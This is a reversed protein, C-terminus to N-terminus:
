RTEEKGQDSKDIPHTFLFRSGEEYDPDIWISGGLQEIILQCISLGLGTGQANENLKEFRNFIKKQKEKPIGTGTDTVSFLATDETQQELQLTISGQSTFKTANILLNILVQQLRASDTLLELSDLPTSFRVDAHTQKIKEVMDIVNRCLGVADCIKFKFTMKGIELSSLDIVDNILKLLLESNQQIIDNCQKRTEEDISEETLITSFGSLANLPTRIEHSMNSLFLSKTRISNEAQKKVKEQEQQSQILRKNNRKIRFIFFIILSLVSLIIFWSWYLIKKQRNINNLENKDIQYLTHLENIQRLYSNADLSDKRANIVEYEECAEEIRGMLSLVKAREQSIQIDKYSGSEKVYPLLEDYSQLAQTYEKAAIHYSAYLYKILLLFYPYPHKAYIREMKQLHELASPLKDSQIEYFARCCPLYFYCPSDPRKDCLAELYNIDKEIGAMQRNNLKILIMQSLANKLYIDAEPIQQMIEIAEEYSGIAVQPTSSSLYTNGIARLALATGLPYDIEKAKKYMSNANDIALSINGETISSQVAMAKLQFLIDYRQQKELEPTLLKEWLIISDTTVCPLLEDYSQLAQTYEKAAIHYSAYLYKILLLFYPYPHKAYIREMKQLHELASPLKDSQIEYFARCCPLYFYCPSDPRKDCLAELYNIDKEIGAMQRNNLKILIMQSLANKLYIDAEPIQQMIEIAEEYSGIAVQPTSSSLYTNGIARLALATGLPYDIEKAKKYMSNANDIALSINGETISSQVAMAKLQFLIDYRQQKELEPTLLKEWLIISDTTVGTNFALDYQILPQLLSLREANTHAAYLTVSIFVTIITTIIHHLNRNM